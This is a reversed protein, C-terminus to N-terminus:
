APVAKNAVATAPKKSQGRKRKKAPPGEVDLVPEEVGGEEDEGGTNEDENVYQNTINGL